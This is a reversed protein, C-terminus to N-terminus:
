IELKAQRVPECKFRAIRYKPNRAAWEAMHVQGNMMCAMPTVAAEGFSMHVDRCEMPSAALCAIFVLEIV